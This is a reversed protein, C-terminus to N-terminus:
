LSSCWRVDQERSPALHSCWLVPWSKRSPVLRGPKGGPKPYESIRVIPRVLEVNGCTKWSPLLNERFHDM